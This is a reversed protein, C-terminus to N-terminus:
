WCIMSIVKLNFVMKSEQSLFALISHAPIIPFTWCLLRCAFYKFTPMSQYLWSFTIYWTLTLFLRYIYPNYFICLKTKWYFCLLNCNLFFTELNEDPYRFVWHNYQSFDNYIRLAPVFSHYGSFCFNQINDPRSSWSGVFTM